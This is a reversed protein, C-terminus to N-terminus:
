QMVWKLNKKAHHWRHEAFNQHQYYAESNHVPIILERLVTEVRKSNQAKSNDCILLDPAGFERISDLLANVFEKESNMGAVSLVLSKRGVFVQAMTFGGISECDAFVTDTAVPENRRLVNLAPYPSKHTQGAKPGSMATAAWQTTGEFTKKVKNVPVGLFHPRFSKYNYEEKTTCYM